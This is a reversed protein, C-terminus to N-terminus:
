SVTKVYISKEFHIDSPSIGLSEIALATMLLSYCIIDKSLEEALEQTMLAGREFYDMACAIHKNVNGILVQIPDCDLQKAQLKFNYLRDDGLAYQDAKRLLTGKIIKIAHALSSNNLIQKRIQIGFCMLKDATLLAWQYYEENPTYHYLRQLDSFLHDPQSKNCYVTTSLNDLKIKVIKNFDEVTM